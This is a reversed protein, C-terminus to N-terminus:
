TPSQIYTQFHMVLAIRAVRSRPAEFRMALAAGGAQESTLSPITRLSISDQRGLQGPTQMMTIRELFTGKALRNMM